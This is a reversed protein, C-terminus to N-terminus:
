RAGLTGGGFLPRGRTQSFLGEEDLKCEDAGDAGGLLVAFNTFYAPDPADDELSGGMGDSLVAVTASGQGALLDALGDGNLDAASVGRQPGDVGLDFAHPRRALPRVADVLDLSVAGAANTSVVVQPADPLMSAAVRPIPLDAIDVASYLTVPALDALDALDTFAPIYITEYGEDTGVSMVVPGFGEASATFPVEMPEEWGSFRGELDEISLFPTDAIIGKRVGVIGSNGSSLPLRSDTEVMPKTSQLTQWWPLRGEATTAAAGVDVVGLWAAGTGDRWGILAGGDDSITRDLLVPTTIGGVTAEDPLTLAGGTEDGFRVRVTARVTTVVPDDASTGGSREVVPEFLFWARRGEATRGTAVAGRHAWSFLDQGEHRVVPGDETFVAEVVSVGGLDDTIALLPMGEAIDLRTLVLADGDGGVLALDGPALPADEASTGAGGGVVPTVRGAYGPLCACTGNLCVGLGKTSPGTNDACAEADGGAAGTGVVGMAVPTAVSVDDALAEAADWTQVLRLAGDLAHASVDQGFSLGEAAVLEELESLLRGDGDVSFSSQGVVVAGDGNVRVRAAIQGSQGLASGLRTIPQVNSKDTAGPVIWAAHAGEGWAEVVLEPHGDGDLDEGAATAVEIEFDPPTIEVPRVNVFARVGPDFRHVGVVLDGGERVRSPDITWTWATTDTRDSASLDHTGFLGMWAQGSGVADPGVTGVRSWEQPERGEIYVGGWRGGSAGGRIALVAAAPVEPDEKTNNVGLVVGFGRLTPEERVSGSTTFAGGDFEPLTLFLARGETTQAAMAGGVGGSRTRFHSTEGCLLGEGPEVGADLLADECVWEPPEGGAATCATAVVGGDADIGVTLVEAVGDQDADSLTVDCLTQDADPSLVSFAGGMLAAVGDVSAVHRALPVEAVFEDDLWVTLPVRGQGAGLGGPVEVTVALTDADVLAVTAPLATGDETMVGIAATELVQSLPVPDGEPSTAAARLTYTVAGGAAGPLTAPSAGLVAESAVGWEFPLDDDDSQDFTDGEPTDDGRDDGPAKGEDEGCAALALTSLVSLTLLTRRM